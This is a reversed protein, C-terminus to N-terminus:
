DIECLAVFLPSPKSLPPPPTLPQAKTGKEPRIDKKIVGTKPHTQPQPTFAKFNRNLLRKRQEPTPLSPLFKVPAPSASPLPPFTSLSTTIVPLSHISSAQGQGHEPRLPKVESKVGSLKNSVAPLRVRIEEKFIPDM